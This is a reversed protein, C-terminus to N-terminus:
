GLRIKKLASIKNLSSCADIYQRALNVGYGLIAILLQMEVAARM